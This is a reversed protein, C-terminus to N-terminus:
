RHALVTRIERATPFSPDLSLVREFKDHAANAQGAGLLAAGLHYLVRPNEPAQEAARSLQKV